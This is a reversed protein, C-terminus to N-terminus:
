SEFLSALQQCAAQVEDVSESFLTDLLQPQVVSPDYELLLSGTSENLKYSEVFPVQGLAAELDASNFKAFSAFIGHKYKLRIRGPIHHGITVWRRIKLVEDIYSKMVTVTGKVM